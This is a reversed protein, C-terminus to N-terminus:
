TAAASALKKTPRPAPPSGDQAAAPWAASRASSAPSYSPNRRSRLTMSPVARAPLPRHRLATDGALWRRALGAAALGVAAGALIDTAWHEDQEIRNVATCAVIGCCLATLWPRHGAHSVAAAVATVNSLHGSPFSVGREAPGRWDDPGLASRPRPRGALRKLGESALGALGLSGLTRAAVQEVHRHGVLRAALWVSTTAAALRHRVAFPAGIRSMARITRSRNGRALARITQDLM